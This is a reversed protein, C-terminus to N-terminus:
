KEISLKLRMLIALKDLYATMHKQGATPICSDDYLYIRTKDDVEGTYSIKRAQAMTIQRIRFAVDIDEYNAWEKSSWGLPKYNRNLIVWTKDDLRQLCYPFNIGRVSFVPM